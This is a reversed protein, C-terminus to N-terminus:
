LSRLLKLKAPGIGDVELLEEDSANRVDEPTNYGASHLADNGDNGVLDSFDYSGDPEALSRPEGALSVGLKEAALEITAVTAELKLLDRTQPEVAGSIPEEIALAKEQISPDETADALMEAIAQLRRRAEDFREARIDPHM